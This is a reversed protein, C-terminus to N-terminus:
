EGKEVYNLIPIFIFLLAGGLAFGAFVDNLYHASLIVRSIGIIFIVLAGLIIVLKKVHEGKAWHYLVYVFLGYAVTSVMAHASPFSYGYADVLPNVFPRPRAVFGKIIRNLFYTGLIFMILLLSLTIQRTRVFLLVAFVFTLLILVRSSGLETIVAFVDYIRSNETAVFLASTHTDLPVLFESAIGILLFVFIGILIWLWKNQYVSRVM